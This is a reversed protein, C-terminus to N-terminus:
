CHEDPDPADDAYPRHRSLFIVKPYPHSLFDIIRESSSTSVAPVALLNVASCRKETLISDRVYPVWMKMSENIRQVNKLRSVNRTAISLLKELRYPTTLNYPHFVFSASRSSGQDVESLRSLVDAELFMNFTQLVPVVVTNSAARGQACEILDDCLEVLSYDSDGPSM